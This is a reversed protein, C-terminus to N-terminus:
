LRMGYGEYFRLLALNLLATYKAQLLSQRAQILNNKGTILEAINKLGVSFQADLLEWSSEQSELNSKAYLYQQQANKANLWYTEIQAYLEQEANQLDLESSQQALKAKTVNTKNQKGDFIPVSVSLGITNNMNNKLQRFIADDSASSNSTGVGATLSITPYYGRKAINVDLKSSEVNLEAEGIEPRQSRALQYVEQKSPLPELVKSDDILPVVVDFQDLMVLELLQKLQLKTNALSEESNVANYEDQSVQAEMQALDAKALSGVDVMVKARDRQVKSGELIEKNVTVAENQYLIQVYYQVIQEQINNSTQEVNQSAIETALKNRKINQRNIGGNWVQWNANIGYSGNYSVEKNSTTFTGGNLNVTSESFPRWSVNQNTSASLTPWLGARSQEYDAEAQSKSLVSKQVQINHTLAYDICQQLTWKSPYTQSYASHLGTSMFLSLLVYKLNRNLLMIHPSQLKFYFHFCNAQLGPETGVAVVTDKSSLGYADTM